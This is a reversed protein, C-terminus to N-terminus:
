ELLRALHDVDLNASAADTLRLSYHTQLIELLGKMQLAVNKLHTKLIWLVFQVREASTSSSKMSNALQSIVWVNGKVYGFKVHKRDLTPSNAKLTGTNRQLKIGLIPCYEPVEIDEPAIDFPLGRKAARLRAGRCLRTELRELKRM